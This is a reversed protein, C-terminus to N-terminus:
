DGWSFTLHHPKSSYKKGPTFSMVLGFRFVKCIFLYFLMFLDRSVSDNLLKLDTLNLFNINKNLLFM